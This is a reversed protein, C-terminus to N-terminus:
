HTVVTHWSRTFKDRVELRADPRLERAFDRGRSVAEKKIPFDDVPMGDVRLHWRGTRDNHRVTVRSTM